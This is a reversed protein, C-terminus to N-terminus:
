FMNEIGCALAELDSARKLRWGVVEQLESVPYAGKDINVPDDIRQRILRPLVNIEKVGEFFLTVPTDSYDVEKELHVGGITENADVQWGLVRAVTILTDAEETSMKYSTKKQPKLLRM